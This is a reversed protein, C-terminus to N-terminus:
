KRRRRAALAALALLSLTGTTPEPVSGAKKIAIENANVVMTYDANGAAALNFYLSALSGDAMNSSLAHGDEQLAKILVVESGETMSAIANLTAEDLNVLTEGEINFASGLTLANDNGGNVNLLLVGDQNLDAMTLNALLIGDKGANLTDQITITGENSALGETYAAVTQEQGISITSLVIPDVGVNQLTVDGTTAAINQLVGTDVHILSLNGGDGFNTVTDVVVHNKVEVDNEAMFLLLEDASVKANEKDVGYQLKQDGTNEVTVPADDDNQFYVGSTADAVGQVFSATVNAAIGVQMAEIGDGGLTADGEVSVQASAGLANNVVVTGDTLTLTGNFASMDGNFTQTGSGSMLINVNALVKINTSYDGDGTIELTRTVGDGANEYFNTGGDYKNSLRSYDGSYLAYLNNGTTSGIDGDNLGAVKVTEANIGIGLARPNSGAGVARFQVVADAATYEDNLILTTNRKSGNNNHYVDLTGSFTTEKVDTGGVNFVTKVDSSSEYTLTLTGEGDIARINVLGGHNTTGVTATAGTMVLKGITLNVSGYDSSNWTANYSLLKAGADMTVTGISYSPAGTNNERARFTAESAGLMDLAKFSVAPGVGGYVTAQVANGADKEDLKLTGSFGQLSSIILKSGKGDATAGGMFVLSSDETGTLKDISVKRKWSQGNTNNFSLTHGDLATTGKLSLGKTGDVGMDFINFSADGLLTVNNMTTTGSNYEIAVGDKLNVKSFHSFDHTANNGGSLKLDYSGGDSRSKNITLEGTSTPAFGSGLELVANLAVSGSGSVKPLMAQAVAASNLVLGAGENVKVEGTVTLTGDGEFTYTKDSISISSATQTGSLTVLEHGNSNFVAAGNEGFNVAENWVASSWDHNESTGKWVYETIPEPKEKSVGMLTLIADQSTLQENTVTVNGYTATTGVYLSIPNQSGNMNGGYGSLSQVNTGNVWITPVMQGSSQSVNTREVAFTFNVMDEDGLSTIANSVTTNGSHFAFGAYNNTVGGQGITITKDTANWYIGNAGQSNAPSNGSYAFLLCDSDLSAKTVWISVTYSGAWLNGGWINVANDLTLSSSTAIGATMDKTVYWEQGFVTDGRTLVPDSGAGFTQTGTTVDAYATTAMAFTSIAAILAARLTTNLRLRM